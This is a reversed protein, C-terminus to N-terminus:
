RERNQPDADAEATEVNRQDPQVRQQPEEERRQEDNGGGPQHVEHLSAFRGILTGGSRPVGILSTPLRAAACAAARARRPGRTTRPPTRPPVLGSAATPRSSTA